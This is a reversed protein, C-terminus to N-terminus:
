CTPPKATAKLAHATLMRTTLTRLRSSRATSRTAFTVSYRRGATLFRQPTGNPTEHVFISRYCNVRQNAYTRGSRGAVRVVVQRPEHLHRDGAFVVYASPQGLRVHGQVAYLLPTGALHFAPPSAAGTAGARAPVILAVVLAAPAIRRLVTM